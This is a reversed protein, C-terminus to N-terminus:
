LIALVVVSSVVGVITAAYVQWRTFLILEEAFYEAIWRSVLAVLLIPTLLSAFAMSNRLIGGLREAPSGQIPIDSERIADLLSELLFPSIVGITITGILMVLWAFPTPRRMMRDYVLKVIKSNAECELALVKERNGSWGLKQSFSNRDLAWDLEMEPQVVLEILKDRYKPELSDVKSWPPGHVWNAPDFERPALRVGFGPINMFQAM